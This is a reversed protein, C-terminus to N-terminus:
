TAQGCDRKYVQSLDAVWAGRKKSMRGNSVLTDNGHDATITTSQSFEPDDRRWTLTRDGVTLDFIRSIGRQDFYIMAFNGAVNDSGIIALGNPFRPEDIETRMILFAGGEHWAFSTRGYLTKGPVEPHSGTTQWEGILFGLAKLAPNSILAKAGITSSQTVACLRIQPLNTGIHLSM